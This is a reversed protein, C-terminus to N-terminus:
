SMDFAYYGARAFPDKPPRLPKGTSTSFVFCEPLVHGDKEILGASLWKDYINRLHQLYGDGHTESTLKLVRTKREEEPLASLQVTRIEYESIRLSKLIAQLREPSELAPILKSGLLEVTKHLLTDPDFLIVLM